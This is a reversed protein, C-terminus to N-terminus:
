FYIWCILTDCKGISALKKAYEKNLKDSNLFAWKEHGGPINKSLWMLHNSLPYRQFQLVKINNEKFGVKLLVNKLTENNFYYLHPSWYTFNSFGKNKYLSILADDVNPVEIVMICDKTGKKKVLKLLEIPDKIHELVHFLTIFNVSNDKIEEISKFTKIGVANLSDRWIKIPEVGSINKNTKKLQVLTGGAGCGIDLYKKDKILLKIQETRRKDDSFCIKLMEEWSVDKLNEDLYHNEYYKKNIHKQDGLFVLKCQECQYIPIKPNDRVKGPIKLFKKSNCLYCKNQFKKM